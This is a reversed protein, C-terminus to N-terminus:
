KWARYGILHWLLWPWLLALGLYFWKNYHDILILMAYAIVWGLAYVILIGWLIIWLM